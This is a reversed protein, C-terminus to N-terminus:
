IEASDEGTYSHPGKFYVAVVEDVLVNADMFKAFFSHRPQNSFPIPKLDPAVVFRSIIDLTGPGSVRITGLAAHGPYTAIAAITM